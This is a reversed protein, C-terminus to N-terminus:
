ARGFRRMMRRWPEIGAPDSGGGELQEMMKEHLRKARDFRVAIRRAARERPTELPTALDAGSLPEAPQGDDDGDYEDLDRPDPM